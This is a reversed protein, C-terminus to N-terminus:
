KSHRLRKRLKKDFTHIEINQLHNYGLLLCDVFDLTSESFLRLGYGLVDRDDSSITNWELLSLLLTSIQKRSVEYWDNLVYVVEAVVEFKLTVHKTELIEKAQSSQEEHDQLLYRLILNADVFEM